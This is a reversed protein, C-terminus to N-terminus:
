EMEGVFDYEGADTIRVTVVNGPAPHENGIYILGDVEPAESESRGVTVFEHEESAGEILVTKRRGIWERNRELSIGRQLEMLRRYREEKVDEPVQGEMDGAPTGEERSYKFAGVRDFRIEKLFDMLEEFDRESEGPFGVIFSSRMTVGPIRERIRELLKLIEDRGGRRGMRRLIRDSGHQLPIDIYRCIRPNEAIVDILEDSFHTPYTYLLRVWLLGDVESLEKLLKPLRREGYLDIGYDTTDQAVVNLEKVGSEALSRAERVISEMPRSRYSGRISPIACYTCRNSCGDAIKLYAWHKPTTLIRPDRDSYLIDPDDIISRREGSLAMDVASVIRDWSGTGLLVDIEPMEEMLEERYRQALCGTVIIAKCNGRGKEESLELITDISEEKASEIFGCTNIVIVDAESPASTIEYGAETLLGLMVESDVLNKSCGLSVFGVKGKSLVFVVGKGYQLKNLNECLCEDM